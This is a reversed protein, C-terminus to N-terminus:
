VNIRKLEGRGWEAPCWQELSWLFKGACQLHLTLLIYSFLELFYPQLLSRPVSLWHSLLDSMLNVVDFELGSMELDHSAFNQFLVIM